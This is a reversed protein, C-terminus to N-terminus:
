KKKNRRELEKKVEDLTIRLQEIDSQQLTNRLNLRYKTENFQRKLKGIM